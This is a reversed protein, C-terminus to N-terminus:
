WRDISEDSAKRKRAAAAHKGKVSRAGSQKDFAEATRPLSSTTARRPNRKRPAEVEVETESWAVVGVSACRPRTPPAQVPTGLNNPTKEKGPTSASPVLASPSATDDSVAASSFRVPSSPCSVVPTVLDDSTRPPQLFSTTAAPVDGAEEGGEACCLNRLGSCSVSDRLREHGTDRKRFSEDEFRVNEPRSSETSAEGTLASEHRREETVCVDGADSPALSGSADAM